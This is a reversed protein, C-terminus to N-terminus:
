FLNLWTPSVEFSISIWFLVQASVSIVNSSSISSVRVNLWALHSFYWYLSSLKMVLRLKWNCFRINTRGSKLCPLPSVFCQSWDIHNSFGKLTLLPCSTISYKTWLCVSAHQHQKQLFQAIILIFIFTGDPVDHDRTFVVLLLSCFLCM